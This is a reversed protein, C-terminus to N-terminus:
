EIVMTIASTLVEAFPSRESGVVVAYSGVSMAAGFTIQYSVTGPVGPIDAGVQVDNIYLRFVDGAIVFSGAHFTLTKAKGAQCTFTTGVSPCAITVPPVGEMVLTIPYGIAEAVGSRLLSVTVTYSGAALAELEVSSTTSGVTPSDQTAVVSGDVRVQFTDGAVVPDTRWEATVPLDPLCTYTSPAAPGTYAV